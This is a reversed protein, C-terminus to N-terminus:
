SEPPQTAAALAAQIALHMDGFPMYAEEAAEIMEDTVQPVQAVPARRAAQWVRWADQTNDYLYNEPEEDDRTFKFRMYKTNAEFAAREDTHQTM